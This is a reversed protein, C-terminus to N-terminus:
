APRSVYRPSRPRAEWSRSSKVLDDSCRLRPRPPSQGLDRAARCAMRMAPARAQDTAAGAARGSRRGRPRPGHYVTAEGSCSRRGREPCRWPAHSRPRSTGTLECAPRRPPRCSLRLVPGAGRPDRDRATRTPTSAPGSSTATRSCWCPRACRTPSRSTSTRSSAGPAACSIGAAALDGALMLGAPGRGRLVDNVAFM